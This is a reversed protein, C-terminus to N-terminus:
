RCRGRVRRGARIAGIVATEITVVVVFGVALGAATGGVAAAVYGHGTM